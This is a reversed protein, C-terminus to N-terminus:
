IDCMNEFITNLQRHVIYFSTCKPIDKLTKAGIYTMTSRIGGLIDEMVNKVSGVYPILKERGETTRYEKM